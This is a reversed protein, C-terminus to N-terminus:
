LGGRVSFRFVTTSEFQEGPRLVTSPFQPHNISDPYHQTELCFGGHREYAVGGIGVLRGNLGNGTYLQVGPETTLVELVRGSGPDFATAALVLRDGGGRIVYNHDYGGPRPELEAIRAGIPTPSTFDLPTGKVSAIEGTPILESDSPTYHDANITLEHDLVKGSGALNFYSHNTLNVLTPKDTSASYNIRLENANTLTYTVKVRLDGPYGEEGDRSLYTFEVAASDEAVPL